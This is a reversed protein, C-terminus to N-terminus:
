DDLGIIAPLSEIGQIRHQHTYVNFGNGRIFGVATIGLEEALNLALNTPASKSLIIGVGIKAAKLLVESSIRGSFAIIKDKLSIRHIICYGFLKDLANHRGIDTRSVVIGDSTCLAANHVGGTQQFHSSSEQMQKMLKRCQEPTITLKTMVTKATKVDNHFYFQRGKGCCSSIFRKSHFEKFVSHKNILDVYAFGRDEDIQLSKIDQYARIVGESALFGVVLEQLDSPTCVMTAFENGDVVITLATEVAIDDEDEFFDQGNFRLINQSTTIENLM